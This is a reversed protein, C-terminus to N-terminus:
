DHDLGRGTFDRTQRYLLWNQLSSPCLGISGMYNRKHEKAMRFLAGVYAVERLFGKPTNLRGRVDYDRERKIEVGGVISAVFKGNLSEFWFAVLGNEEQPVEYMRISRM